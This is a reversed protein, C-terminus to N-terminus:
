KAISALVRRKGEFPRRAHMVLYNDLLAVDGQKWELEVATDECMAHAYSLAETDLSSGDGFVLYDDLNQTTKGVFCLLIAFLNNHTQPTQYNYYSLHLCDYVEQSCWEVCTSHTIATPYFNFEYFLFASTSLVCICV